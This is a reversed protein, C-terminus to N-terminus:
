YDNSESLDTYSPINLLKRLEHQIEKRGKEIGQRYSTEMCQQLEKLTYTKQKVKTM